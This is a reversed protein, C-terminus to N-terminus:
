NLQSIAQTVALRQARESMRDIIVASVEPYRALITAARRDILGLRLRSLANWRVVVPLLEPPGEVHWPRVIDGPGLLETSVTDGLVVERALVGEVVLLGLHTPDADALRGGDWEGIPFSTVRVRLEREAAERREATLLQGLDPDLELLARGASSTRTRPPASEM